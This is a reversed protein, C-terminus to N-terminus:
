PTDAVLGIPHKPNTWNIVWDDWYLTGSMGAESAGILSGIWMGIIEDDPTAGDSAHNVSGVFALSADYVDFIVTDNNRYDVAIWYWANQPLSVYGTSYYGVQIDVYYIFSKLIMESVGINMLKLYTDTGSYFTNISLVDHENDDNGTMGSPVYLWFGTTFSKKRTDFVYQVTGPRYETGNNEYALGESGASDSVGNFVAPATKEGSNSTSADGDNVMNWSGLTTHANAALNATNLTPFDFTQWMDVAAIVTTAPTVTVSTSGAISGSTAMITASGSGVAAALGNSGAVNSITAVSTNSSSWTVSTTIDQSSNDSYIGIATFHYNRGNQITPNVPTIEISHLSPPLIDLVVEGGCSFVALSLLLIFLCIAIKM